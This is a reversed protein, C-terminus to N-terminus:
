TVPRLEKRHKWAKTTEMTKILSESDRVCSDFSPAENYNSGWDRFDLSVVVTIRRELSRKDIREARCGFSIVM